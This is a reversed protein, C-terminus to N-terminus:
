YWKRSAITARLQSAPLLAFGVKKRETFLCWVKKATVKPYELLEEIWDRHPSTLDEAPTKLLFSSGTLAKIRSIVDAEPPFSEGRRIGVNQAM